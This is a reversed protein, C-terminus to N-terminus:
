SSSSLELDCKETEGCECIAYPPIFTIFFGNLTSISFQLFNKAEEVVQTEEGLYLLFAFRFAAAMSCSEAVFKEEKESM